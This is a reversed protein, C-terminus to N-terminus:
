LFWSRIVLVTLYLGLILAGFGFAASLLKTLITPHKRTIEEIRGEAKLREYELPHNEKLEELRYRGTFIIRDMPFKTPIFHTNFFHVTFIFLAALLAEESHIVTAVNLVWGPVVYSAWEPKWLFLGSFGIATMGWFVALFDFKEWYTWRDFKPKEGLGVFWRFMGGMDRVDKWRPFLSEPGFLRGTWGKIRGGPFLFVLCRLFTYLFLAILVSAAIRHFLGANTAGGWFLVLSKAWGTNHYKLPLGTVVLTLFSLVLLVHMIREWPTFRQVLILGESPPLESKHLEGTKEMRHKDWYTKRWWLGTHVWFFLFVSVLLVIMLVLTWYLEPYRKSDSYDPHPKYTVFRPHFGSHCRGCNDVLNAPNVTSKPDDKPLINHSTHCDACGAVRTPYGINQVKGHYTEEYHQVVKASLENRKMMQEDAHCKRCSQSYFERAEAPYLETSTHYARTDHLGHCDSCTAADQNGEMVAKGHGSASYQENGHCQTCREIITRKLDSQAVAKIAHVNSHCDQCEFNEHLFHFNNRFEVSIREHCSACSVAEPKRVGEMHSDTDTVGKHCSTCSLDAHASKPFQASFMYGDHCSLCDTAAPRGKEIGYGFAARQFFPGPFAALAAIALLLIGIQIAKVQSM